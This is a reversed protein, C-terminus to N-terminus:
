SFGGVRTRARAAKRQEFNTRNINGCTKACARAGMIRRPSPMMLCVKSAHSPENIVGRANFDQARPAPTQLTDRLSGGGGGLVLVFAAAGVM